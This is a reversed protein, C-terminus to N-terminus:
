ESIPKEIGTKLDVWAVPEYTMLKDKDSTEKEEIWSKNASIIYDVEKLRKVPERLPGAPLTFGNGFKKYGDVLAIEMDRGLKYHQMGDDSIIVDLAQQKLLDTVAESRNKNVMVAVGTQMAILLPEDGSVVPNSNSDVLLSGTEHSGGYGRSVVGVKKGHQQLYEVLKIVVPTKGSGGVTINGVVVIPINFQNVRFIGLRYFAKRIKSLVYFFGAIPLLAYNVVGRRNLDM